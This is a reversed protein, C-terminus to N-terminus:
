TPVEKCDFIRRGSEKFPFESNVFGTFGFTYKRNDPYRSRTFFPLEIFIDDIIRHEIHCDCYTSYDLPFKKHFECVYQWLM